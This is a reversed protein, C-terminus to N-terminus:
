DVLNVVAVIIICVLGVSATVAPRVTLYIRPRGWRRALDAILIILCCTAGAIAVTRM